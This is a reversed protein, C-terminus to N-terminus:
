ARWVSVKFLALAEAYCESASHLDGNSYHLHGLAQGVRAVVHSACLLLLLPVRLALAYPTKPGTHQHNWDVLRKAHTVALEYDEQKVLCAVKAVSGILAPAVVAFLSIPGWWTAWWRRTSPRLPTAVCSPNPRCRTLVSGPLRGQRVRTYTSMAAEFDNQLFQATGLQLADHPEPACLVSAAVKALLVAFELSHTTSGQKELLSLLYKVIDAAPPLQRNQELSQMLAADPDLPALQLDSLSSAADLLVAPPVPVRVGQQATDHTDPTGRAGAEPLVAVRARGNYSKAYAPHFHAEAAPAWAACLVLVVALLM